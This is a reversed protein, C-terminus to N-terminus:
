KAYELNIVELHGAESNAFVTKAPAEIKRNIYGLRSHRHLNTHV